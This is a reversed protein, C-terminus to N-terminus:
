ITQKLTSPPPFSLVLSSLPPICHLNLTVPLQKWLIDESQGYHARLHQGLSSNLWLMELSVFNSWLFPINMTGRKKQWSSVGHARFWTRHCRCFRWWKEVYRQEKKELLELSVKSEPHVLLDLTAERVLLVLREQPDRFDFTNWCSVLFYIHSWVCDLISM